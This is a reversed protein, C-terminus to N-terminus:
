HDFRPGESSRCCHKCVLLSENRADMRRCGQRKKRHRNLGPSALTLNRLDNSFQRRAERSRACLGSDHAESIAVIHEIDTERTSGFKEGTYPSWIVEGLGEVIRQEISQPYRYDARDYPACRHEPAVVLGRWTEVQALAMGPGALLLVILPIKNM